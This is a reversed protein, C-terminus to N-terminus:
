EGISLSESDLAITLAQDDTVIVSEPERNYLMAYVSNMPEATATPKVFASFVVIVCIAVAWVAALMPRPIAQILPSFPEQQRAKYLALVRQTFFPRVKISPEPITHKLAIMQQYFTNCDTCQHLHDVLKQKEAPSLRDDIYASINKLIKRHKM